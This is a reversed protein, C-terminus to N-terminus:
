CLFSKCTRVYMYSRFPFLFHRLSLAKAGVYDLFQLESKILLDRCIVLFEECILSSNPLTSM